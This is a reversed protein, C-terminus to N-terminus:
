TYWSDHCVHCVSLTHKLHIWKIHAKLLDHRVHSVWIHAVCIYVFCVDLSDHCVSLHTSWTFRSVCSEYTHRIHLLGAVCIHKWIHKWILRAVCIHKWIHAKLSDHCVYSTSEYTRCSEKLCTVHSIWLHSMVWKKMCTIHSMRIRAMVWLYLHSAEHMYTGHMMWVHAKAWVVSKKIPVAASYLTQEVPKLYPEGLTCVYSFFFNGKSTGIHAMVFFFFHRQEHRHTGHSMRCTVLSLSTDCIWTKAMVHWVWADSRQILWVDILRIVHLILWPVCICSDHRTV